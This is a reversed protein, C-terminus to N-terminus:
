GKNSVIGEYVERLLSGLHVFIYSTANAKLITEMGLMDDESYIGFKRAVDIGRRTADLEFPVSKFMGGLIM